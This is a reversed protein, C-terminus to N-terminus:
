KENKGFNLFNLSLITFIGTISIGKGQFFDFVMQLNM